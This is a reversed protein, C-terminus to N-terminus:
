TDKDGYAGKVIDIYKEENEALEYRDLEILRQDRVVLLRFFIRV